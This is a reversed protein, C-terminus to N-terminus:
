QMAGEIVFIQSHIHCPHKQHPARQSYKESDKLSPFKFPCPQKWSQSIYILRKSAGDVVM